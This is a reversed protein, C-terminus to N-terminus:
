IKRSDGCGGLASTSVGRLSAAGGSVVAYAGDKLAHTTREPVRPFPAAVPAAPEAPQELPKLKLAKHVEYLSVDLATAIAEPTVGAVFMALAAKRQDVKM